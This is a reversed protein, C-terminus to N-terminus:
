RIEQHMKEKAMSRLLFCHINAIIPSSTRLVKKSLTGTISGLAWGLIGEGTNINSMDPGASHEPVIMTDSHKELKEIFLRLGQLAATRM